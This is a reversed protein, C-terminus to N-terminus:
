CRRPRSTRASGPASRAAALGPDPASSYLPFLWTRAEDLVRLTTWAQWRRGATCRTRARGRARRAALASWSGSWCRCCSWRRGRASSRCGPSCRCCTRTRRRTLPRCCRCVVLARGAGRPDAPLSLLSRWPPTPRRDLAPQGGAPRVVPGRADSPGARGALGSWYEGDRCGASCRRARAGGRRGEGVDAGPCLMSRAGVRARAGVRVAGSTCCTATSGTAREPRGGARDLLRARAHAPRDGAPGLAPRRRPRGERGAAPRLWTMWPAGALDTAGLEDALREALWLRLHVQGGRPHDGAAVSACCSGPAPRPWCCGARRRSSWCWGASGAGAVLVGAAALTWASRTPWRTTCGIGIWALWRLGTLARLPM